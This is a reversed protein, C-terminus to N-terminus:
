TLDPFPSVLRLFNGTFRSELKAEAILDGNVVVLWLSAAPSLALGASVALRAYLLWSSLDYIAKWLYQLDSILLTKDANLPYFPIRWKVPRKEIYLDWIGLVFHGFDDALRTFEVQPREPPETSDSSKEPITTNSVPISMTTQQPAVPFTAGLLPRIHQGGVASCFTKDMYNVGLSRETAFAYISSPPPM